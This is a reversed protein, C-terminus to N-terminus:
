EDLMQNAAIKDALPSGDRPELKDLLATSVRLEIERNEGDQFILCSETPNSWIVRGIVGLNRHKAYDGPKFTRRQRYKRALCARTHKAESCAADCGEIRPRIAPAGIKHVRYGNARLLTIATQIRNM